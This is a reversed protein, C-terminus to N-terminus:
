TLIEEAIKNKLDAPVEGLLQLSKADRFHREVPYDRTYGYGGHIQIANLASCVAGECSRLFAIRAAAGHDEGADARSAADYVLLRSEEVCTKIGALMERVMPFECIARGFQRRQKSYKAAADLSAETIGLAIASYAIRATGHLPLSVDHGDHGCLLCSQEALPARKLEVGCTGASRMGMTRVPYTNMVSADRVLLHLAISESTKVPVVFLEALMGALVVDCKGTLYHQDGESELGYSQVATDVDTFPAYGCVAGGALRKLYERHVQGLDLDGKLIAQAVLCNNVAVMLALSACSKALEELAVCLSTIDLGAGGYQEPVILGFLGMRAIGELIHASVARDREIDAAIPELEGTVFKRVEGRVLNQENSLRIISM